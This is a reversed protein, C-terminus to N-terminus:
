LKITNTIIVPMAVSPGVLASGRCEFETAEDDLYKRIM